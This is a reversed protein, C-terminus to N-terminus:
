SAGAEKKPLPRARPLVTPRVREYESWDGTEQAKKRIQRLEEGTVESGSGRGTDDRDKSGPLGKGGGGEDKKKGEDGGKGTGAGAAGVGGKKLDELLLGLGRPAKSADKQLGDFWDGIAPRDKEPAQGHYFRVLQRDENSRIGREALALDSRLADLESAHTKKATELQTALTDATAAREEHKKADGRVTALQDRLDNREQVVESFRSYPVPERAQGGKDGGGAGGAGGKDKDEDGM